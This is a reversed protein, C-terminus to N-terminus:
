NVLSVAFSINPRTHSLYILRGVLRQFRGKDVEQGGKNAQLKTNPDVLTRGRKGKLLGIEDLM